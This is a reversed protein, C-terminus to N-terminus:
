APIFDYAAVPMITLTSDAHGNGGTLTSAGALVTRNTVITQAVFRIYDGANLPFFTEIRNRFAQNDSAGTDWSTESPAGNAGLVMNLKASGLNANSWQLDARVWYLAPQLITYRYQAGVIGHTMFEEWGDAYPAAYLSSYGIETVTGQTIAANGSLRARFRPTNKVYPSQVWADSPIRRRELAQTRREMARMWQGIDQPLYQTM